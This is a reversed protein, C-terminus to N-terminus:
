DVAWEMPVVDGPNPFVALFSYKSFCFFFFFFFVSIFHPPLSLILYVHINIYYSEVYTTLKPRCNVNEIEM